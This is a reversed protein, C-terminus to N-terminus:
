QAVMLKKSYAKKNHRIKLYYVGSPLPGPNIDRSLRGIFDPITLTYVEQGISNVLSIVLDSKTRTELQLNFPGKTPNPAVTLGIEAGDINTVPTLTVVIANSTLVCGQADGRVVKYTGSAVATHNQGTAGPIAVDNLLWQNGDTFNSSLVNGVNTIVPATSTTAVIAARPSPCGSVPKVGIDYLYYYFGQPYSPNNAEWATNGTISILGPVMYPYHTSTIQNNRYISAGETFEIALIYEAAEPVTIGLYYIAGLDAPDNIQAGLTPPTPATATVTLTKSSVPFYTYGGTADNFNVLRRLHFTIKGSNGIYLRATKLVTPQATIFRIGPSFQNYGGTPFAMKSTAGVKTQYEGSSLYYTSLITSSTTSSGIAIPTPANSSSYWSFISNAASTATLQATTGCINATGTPTPANPGTTVTTVVQNNSPVQDGDVNASATITYTTGAALTFPTQFTYEVDTGAALSGTYTTNYTAITTTGEKIEITLPINTLTTTGFNRILVTAYQETSRCDGTAPAILQAIGGDIAPGAVVLRYDQTEGRTYTGCPTVAAASNTEVMVVRLITSNGVSLGSPITVNSTFDGNGNIVSSTILTENADTFDGDNNADIFIKLIKDTNTADCSNLRAFFPLTQGPQVTASLNTFNSYGTCNTGNKNRINAFSVSDIRAGATSTPNSACYAAGGIGSVLLSYAQTGRALSGKHTIEITYTEGPIVDSVVVQEVNDTINDGKTAAASPNAPNLVWAEYTTAGKKVRIDLDHVLRKTPNNLATALPEVPGRPDTWSITAILQGQGTAVVNQSATNSNNLVSEQILHNTNNSTIAAAAKQMNILGWGFQYDPGASVGAEDATHIVLGKLTASRMFVGGHLQAYYEQLLLLSGAANPSAMSTGSYSDYANDASAVSSLLGVGAASVDPKIRGDDTPGWSSFSSMTVDSSKLYGSPLMGVAAVTLINKAVGYSPIIDYADNSYIGDPRAGAASMVGNADYRWYPQGVAPGNENRKNGSSKVILYYPANYAISDWLEAKSSYYGMKYDENENARGRFEWRGPNVGDNFYWGAIEGYSHNSVLLNAADALMESNDNGFDYAWLQQQGFSMGKALPNAGSAVLTGSVHTAHDSLATANDKQLIRGTLELHTSRVAGGDWVGLKSRVSNSSGSLNLGTVGGPWLRSTGITAAATINNDTVIYEPYGLADVGALLAIKGNPGHMIAPWGKEKALTQLRQQMLKEKAAQQLSAQRLIETKTETQSFAIAPVAVILAVLLRRLAMFKM